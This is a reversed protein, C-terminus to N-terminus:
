SISFIVTAEEKWHVAIVPDIKNINNILKDIQTAILTTLLEKGISNLTLGHKNFYKRDSVMEVFTAHRFSKATKSLKVNHAQIALSTKCDKTLDHRPPVNVFIIHTNNYKQM